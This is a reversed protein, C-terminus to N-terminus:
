VVILANLRAFEPWNRPWQVAADPMGRFSWLLLELGFTIYRSVTSPILAFIEQLSTERMTSNLYHLVLGLAGEADLSRANPRANRSAADSRPIPNEYWGKGFGAAIITHFTAVDFGM